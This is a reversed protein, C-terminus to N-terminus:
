NDSTINLLTHLELKLQRRGMLLLADGMRGLIEDDSMENGDILFRQGNIGDFVVINKLLDNPFCTEERFKLGLKTGLEIIEKTKM